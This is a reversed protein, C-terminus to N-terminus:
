VHASHDEKPADACGFRNSSSNRSPEVCQDDYQRHAPIDIFGRQTFPFAQPTGTVSKSAVSKSIERKYINKKLYQTDCVEAKMIRTIMDIAHQQQRGVGKVRTQPPLGIM